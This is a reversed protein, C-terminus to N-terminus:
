ALMGEILRVLMKKQPLNVEKVFESVAPILLEQGEKRVVYIDNGANSLVEELEGLHEGGTDFVQLGLLDDIFYVDEPLATRKAEPVWLESKVLAQAAERNDIGRFKLLSFQERVQVAEVIYGQMEEGNEIHITELHLFREPYGSYPIAKLYGKLGHTQVIKGVAIYMTGPFSGSLIRHFFSRDEM